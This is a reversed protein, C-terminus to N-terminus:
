HSLRRRCCCATFGIYAAYHGLQRAQLAATILAHEVETFLGGNLYGDVLEPGGTLHQIVQGEEGCTAVAVAIRPDGGSLSALAHRQSSDMKDPVRIRRTRRGDLLQRADAFPDGSRGPIALEEFYTPWMAGVVIIKITTDLLRRLRQAAKAGSSGTLYRQTENLWLVSNQMFRGQDLVANLEDADAPWIMPWQRVEEHSRLAEYLTRTKGTTSSGILLAFLSQGGAAARKIEERLEADHAREFYPTLGTANIGPWSGRPLTAPHVGLTHPDWDVVPMTSTLLVSPSADSKGVDVAVPVQRITRRHQRTQATWVQRAAHLDGLWQRENLWGAKAVGKKRAVSVCFRAVLLLEEDRQPVHKGRTWDSITRFDVGTGSEIDRLSLGSKGVLDALRARFVEKADEGTVM